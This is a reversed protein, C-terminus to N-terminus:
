KKPKFLNFNFYSKGDILIPLSIPSEGADVRIDDIESDDIFGRYLSALIKEDAEKDVNRTLDLVPRQIAARERSEAAASSSGGMRAQRTEQFTPAEQTTGM